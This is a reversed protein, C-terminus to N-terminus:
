VSGNLIVALRSYVNYIDDICRKMEACDQDGVGVVKAYTDLLEKEENAFDNDAYALGLLEFYIVRKKRDDCHAIEKSLEETSTVDDKEVRYETGMEKQYQNLLAIEEESIVGDAMVLNLAMKWFLDKEKQDLEMLFM